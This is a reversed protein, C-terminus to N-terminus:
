AGKKNQDGGQQWRVANLFPAFLDEDKNKIYYEELEELTPDRDQFAVFSLDELIVIPTQESGEGMLLCAAAALGGAISSNTVQLPRGFLDPQGRYDRLAAFGSHGISIGLTGIRMPTCTSDTIIVGVNKLGFRQKLYLRIANASKQPDAPWLVYNGDANSEDIGASAILTKHTITFHYGYEGLRAPLYHDAEKKILEDKDISDMPVIRGECIAVVKSSIVVISGEALEGLSEDLFEEVTVTDATVKRTKVPLAKM